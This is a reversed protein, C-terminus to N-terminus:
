VARLREYGLNFKEMQGFSFNEVVIDSQQVIHLALEQATRRALNLTVSKKGRNYSHHHGSREEGQKGDAFPTLRRSIDMHESSEIKIVEAGMLVLHETCFPGAIVWSFDAVRIGELPLTM